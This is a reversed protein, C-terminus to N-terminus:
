ESLVEAVRKQLEPLLEADFWPHKKLWSNNRWSPHPTPFFDPAFDRWAAVTETLSKKARERLYWAQAYQGVLIKIKLEPLAAM